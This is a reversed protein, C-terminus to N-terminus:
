WTRTLRALNGAVTELHAAALAFAGEAEDDLAAMANTVGAAMDRLMARADISPDLREALAIEHRRAAESRLAVRRSEDACAADLTPDDLALGPGAAAPDTDEQVWPEPVKSTIGAHRGDLFTVYAFGHRNGVIRVRAGGSYTGYRPTPTTDM